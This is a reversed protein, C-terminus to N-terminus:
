HISEGPCPESRLGEDIVRLVQRWTRYAEM